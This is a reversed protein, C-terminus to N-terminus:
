SGVSRFISWWIGTQCILSEATSQLCVDHCTIAVMRPSSHALWVHFSALVLHDKNLCQATPFPGPLNTACEPRACPLEVRFLCAGGGGPLLKAAGIRTKVITQGPRGRARLTGTGEPANVGTRAIRDALRLHAPHAFKQPFAGFPTPAGGIERLVRRLLVGLLVRNEWLVGWLVELFKRM